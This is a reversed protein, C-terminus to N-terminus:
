WRWGGFSYLRPGPSSSFTVPIGSAASGPVGNKLHIRLDALLTARFELFRIERETFLPPYDGEVIVTASPEGLPAPLTPLVRLAFGDALIWPQRALGGDQAAALAPLLALFLSRFNMSSRSPHAFTALPEAKERVEIEIVGYFFFGRLWM